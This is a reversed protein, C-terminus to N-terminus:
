QNFLFTLKIKEPEFKLEPFPPTAQTIKGPLNKKTRQNGSKRSFAIVQM